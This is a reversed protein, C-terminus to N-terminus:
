KMSFGDIFPHYSPTGRHSTPFRRIGIMDWAAQYIGKSTFSRHCLHAGDFLRRNWPGCFDDYLERPNQPNCHLAAFVDPFRMLSRYIDPKKKTKMFTWPKTRHIPSHSKKNSKMPNVSLSHLYWGDHAMMPRHHSSTWQPYFDRFENSEGFHKNSVRRNLM